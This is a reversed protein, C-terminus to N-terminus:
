GNNIIELEKITQKIGPYLGCLGIDLNSLETGSGTYPSDFEKENM